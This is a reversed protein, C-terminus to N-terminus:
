GRDHDMPIGAVRRSTIFPRPFSDGRPYENGAAWFGAPAIRRFLSFGGETFPTLWAEEGPEVAFGQLGMEVLRTAFGRGRASPLLWVHVVAWTTGRTEESTLAYREANADWRYRGRPVRREMVLLGIGRGHRSLLLAHSAFEPVISYENEAYFTPKDYGGADVPEEIARRSVREARLRAFRRSDPRVLLVNADDIMGVHKFADLRRLRVGLLYEDHFVCHARRYM